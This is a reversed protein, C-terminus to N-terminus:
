MIPIAPYPSVPFDPWLTWDFYTFPMKVIIQGRNDISCVRGLWVVPSATADFPMVLFTLTTLHTWRFM